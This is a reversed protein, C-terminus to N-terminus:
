MGKMTLTKFVMWLAGAFGLSALSLLAFCECIQVVVSM